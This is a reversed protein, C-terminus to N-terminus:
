INKLWALDPDLHPEYTEEEDDGFYEYWGDWTNYAPYWYKGDFVYGEVKDIRNYKLHSESGWNIITGIPFDAIVEQPTKRSYRHEDM